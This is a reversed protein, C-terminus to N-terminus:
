NCVQQMNFPLQGTANIGDMVNTLLIHVLKVPPTAFGFAAETPCKLTLVWLPKEGTPYVTKFSIPLHSEGDGWGLLSKLQAPLGITPPQPLSAAGNPLYTLTSPVSEGATTKSMMPFVVPPPNAAVSPAIPQLYPNVTPSPLVMAAPVVARAV